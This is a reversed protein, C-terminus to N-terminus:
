KNVTKVMFGCCRDLHSRYQCDSIGEDIMPGTQEQIGTTLIFPKIM